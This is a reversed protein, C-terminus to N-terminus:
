FKKLSNRTQITKTLTIKTQVTKTAEVIDDYMIVSDGIISKVYKGNCTDPNWIFDKEGKRKKSKWVRVLM